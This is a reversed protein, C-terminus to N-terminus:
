PGKRGLCGIIRHYNIIIDLVKLPPGMRLTYLWELVRHRSQHSLWLNKWWQVRGFLLGPPMVAALTNQQIVWGAVGQWWLEPAAEHGLTSSPPQAVEWQARSPKTHQQFPSHCGKPNKGSHHLLVSTHIWLHHKEGPDAATVCHSISLALQTISDAARLTAPKPTSHFNGTTSYSSEASIQPKAGLKDGLFPWHTLKKLSLNMSLIGWCTHHPTLPPKTTNKSDVPMELGSAAFATHPGPTGPTLLLSLDTHLLSKAAGAGHAAASAPWLVWSCLCVQPKNLSGCIAWLQDGWSEGSGAPLLLSATPSRWHGREAKTGRTRHLIKRHVQAQINSTQTNCHCSCHSFDKHNKKRWNIFIGNTKATFKNKTIRRLRM